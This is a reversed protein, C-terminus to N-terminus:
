VVYQVLLGLVIALPERVIRCVGLLDPHRLERSIIPREHEAIGAVGPIDVASRLIRIELPREDLREIAGIGLGSQGAFIRM